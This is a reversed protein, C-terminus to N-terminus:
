YTGGYVNSEDCKERIVVRRRQVPLEDVVVGPRDFGIDDHRSLHRPGLYPHPIKPARRQCLHLRVLTKTGDGCEGKKPIPLVGLPLPLLLLVITGVDIGHRNWLHIPVSEM